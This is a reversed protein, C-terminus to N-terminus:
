LASAVIFHADSRNQQDGTIGNAAILIGFTIGRDEVKSVFWRVEESGVKNMWNKCEIFIVFPFVSLSLGSPHGENRFAVDIEQTGFVNKVKRDAFILGPISSFLYCILEELADGKEQATQAQDGRLLFARIRSSSIRAM